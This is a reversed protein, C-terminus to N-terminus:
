LDVKEFREASIKASLLTFVAWLIIGAFLVPLQRLQASKELTDLYASVPSPIYQALSEAAIIYLFTFVGGWLFAKGESRGTKYFVPFFILNFGGYMLFSLGFFAINPEIGANNGGAPNIKASIVAFPIAILINVPSVQFLAGTMASAGTIADYFSVAGFVGGLVAGAVPGMTIAGVAIPLTLFSMYLPGMPVSGLGIAKMVLEIAVLLALRTLTRLDNNKM